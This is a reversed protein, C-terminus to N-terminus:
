DLSARRSSSLVSAYSRVREREGKRGWYESRIIIARLKMRQTESIIGYLTEYLSVKDSKLLSISVM